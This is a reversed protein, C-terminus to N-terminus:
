TSVIIAIVDIHFWNINLHQNTIALQIYGPVIMYQFTPKTRPEYWIFVLKLNVISSKFNVRKGWKVRILSDIHHM